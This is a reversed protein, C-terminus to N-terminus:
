RPKKDQKALQQVIFCAVSHLLHRSMQMFSPGINRRVSLAYWVGAKKMISHFKTQLIHIECAGGETTNHTLMGREFLALAM